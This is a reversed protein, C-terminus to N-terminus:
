FNYRWICDCESIHPILVEGYSNLPVYNLRYCCWTHRDCDMGVGLLLMLRLHGASWSEGRVLDSVSAGPAVLYIQFSGASCRISGSCVEGEWRKWRLIAMEAEGTWM